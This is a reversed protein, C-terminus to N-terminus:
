LRKPELESLEYWYSKLLPDKRIFSSGAGTDLTANVLRRSMGFLEMTLLVM